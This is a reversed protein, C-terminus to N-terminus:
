GGSRFAQLRRTAEAVLCAHDTAVTLLQFGREAAARAFSPDATHLGAVKGHRRCAELIRAVAAVHDPHDNDMRPELGLAHGASPRGVAMEAVLVRSEDQVLEPVDEAAPRGVAGAWCASPAASALWLWAVRRATTVQRESM